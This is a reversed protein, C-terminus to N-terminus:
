KLIEIDQVPHIEWVTARGLGTVPDAADYEIESGHFYDFYSWGKVRIKQGVKPKPFNKHLLRWEPTIEMHLDGINFCYDRDFAGDAWTVTGELEVGIQVHHKNGILDAPTTRVHSKPRKIHHKMLFVRIPDLKKFKELPVDVPFIWGNPAVEGDEPMADPLSLQEDLLALKEDATTSDEATWRLEENLARVLSGGYERAYDLKPFDRYLAELRNLVPALKPDLRGNKRLEEIRALVGESYAELSKTDEQDNVTERDLEESIYKLDKKVRESEQLTKARRRRHAATLHLAQSAACRLEVNESVVAASPRSSPLLLLGAALLLRM